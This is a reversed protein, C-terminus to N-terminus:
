TKKWLKYKSLFVKVDKRWPSQSKKILISKKRMKDLNLKLLDSTLEILRKWEILLVLIPHIKIVMISKFNALISLRLIRPSTFGMESSKMSELSYISEMRWISRMAKPTTNLSKMITNTRPMRCWCRYKNRRTRCGFPSTILSKTRTMSSRASSPWDSSMPRNTLKSWKIINHSYSRSQNYWNSCQEIVFQGVCVYFIQCWCWSLAETPHFWFPSSGVCQWNERM